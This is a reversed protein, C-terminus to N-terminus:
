TKGYKRKETTEDKQRETKVRRPEDSNMLPQSLDIQKSSIELGVRFSEPGM